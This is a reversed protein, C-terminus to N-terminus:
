PAKCFPSITALLIMLEFRYIQPVRHQAPCARRLSLSTGGQSISIFLLGIHGCYICWGLAVGIRNQQANGQASQNKSANQQEHIPAFIASRSALLRRRRWSRTNLEAFRSCRSALRGRLRGDRGGASWSVRGFAFLVSWPFYFLDRPPWRSGSKKARAKRGNEGIATTASVVFRVFLFFGLWVIAQTERGGLTWRARFSLGRNTTTRLGRM